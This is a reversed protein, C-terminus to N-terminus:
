RGPRFSRSIRTVIPDFAREVAVPYALDLGHVGGRGEAVRLYFVDSGRNGSVVLHGNRTRRRYTVVPDGAERLYDAAVRALSKGEPNPLAFVALRSRRDPNLMTEGREDPLVVDTTFLDVPVDLAYGWRPNRYRQWDRARPVEVRGGRVDTRDVGPPRPERPPPSVPEAPAPSGSSPVTGPVPEARDQEAADPSPTATQGLAPATLCSLGAATLFVLITQKM